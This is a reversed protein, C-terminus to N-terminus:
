KVDVDVAVSDFFTPILTIALIFVMVRETESGTALVLDVWRDMDKHKQDDITLHCSILFTFKMPIFFWLFECGGFGNM